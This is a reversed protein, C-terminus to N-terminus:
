PTVFQIGHEGAIQVIRAMDPPSPKAFEAACRSYFTEFGAPSTHVLM